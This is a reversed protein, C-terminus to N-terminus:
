STPRKVRLPRRGESCATPVQTAEERGRYTGEYNTACLTWCEDIKMSTALERKPTKRQYKKRLFFDKRRRISPSVQVRSMSKLLRASWRSLWRPLRANCQLHVQYIAGRAFCLPRARLQSINDQPFYAWIPVFLLFTPNLFVAWCLPIWEFDSVFSNLDFVDSVSCSM